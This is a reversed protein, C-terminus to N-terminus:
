RAILLSCGARDILGHATTGLVPEDGVVMDAAATVILTVQDEAARELAADVENGGAEALEVTVGSEELAMATQQFVDSITDGDPGTRNVELFTVHDISEVPLTRVIEAARVSEPSNDSVVLIRSFSAPSTMLLVPSTAHRSVKVAVSGLLLRRLAGVGQKGLVILDAGVSEALRQIEAAPDGQPLEWAVRYGAEELEHASETAIAEAPDQSSLSAPARLDAGPRRLPTVVVITVRDDLRAQFQSLLECGANGDPSGDTALLIHM